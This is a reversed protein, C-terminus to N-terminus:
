AQPLCARLAIRVGEIMMELPMAALPAALIESREADTAAELRRLRHAAAYAPQTPVHIFGATLGTRQSLDALLYAMKNCLYMGPTAAACLPVDERPPLLGGMVAPIGARLMERVMKEFPLTGRLWDPGDELIRGDMATQMAPDEPRADTGRQWNVAYPEPRLAGARADTGLAVVVDPRIADIAAMVQPFADAWVVPVIVSHVRASPTDPGATITEGHLARAIREANNTEGQPIGSFWGYGALLITLQRHAM